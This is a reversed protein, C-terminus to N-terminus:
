RHKCYGFGSSGVSASNNITSSCTCYDSSFDFNRNYFQSKKDAQPSETPLDKWSASQKLLLDIYNELKQLPDAADM